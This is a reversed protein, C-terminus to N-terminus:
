KCVILLRVVKSRQSMEKQYEHQKVLQKFESFGPMKECIVRCVLVALNSLINTYDDETPLVDDMSM